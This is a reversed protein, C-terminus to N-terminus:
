IRLNKLVAYVSDRELRYRNEFDIALKLAHRFRKEGELLERVRALLEQLEELQDARLDTGVTRNKGDYRFRLTNPRNFELLGRILGFDSKGAVSFTLRIRGEYYFRSVKDFLGNDSLGSPISVSLSPHNFAQNHASSSYLDGRGEILVASLM